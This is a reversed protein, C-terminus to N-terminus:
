FLNIFQTVILSTICAPIIIDYYFYFPRDNIETECIIKCSVCERIKLLQNMM